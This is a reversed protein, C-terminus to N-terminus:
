AKFYTMQTTTALLRGSPSWLEGSQDGYSKHFTRADAVGLVHTIAEKALDDADAHFYTTLSVTGIPVIEGKVHFIRAFFADSMALLSLADIRRPVRDGIWLKSFASGPRMIGNRVDVMGEIFRFDYQRTWSAAVDPYRRIEEFPKASPMKVQQQSWSVRREAFVATALAAPEAGAQSLEVCWHQSSRNAKVLRLDVDFEGKAIPACYNVTLAL